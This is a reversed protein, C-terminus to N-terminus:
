EEGKEASVRVRMRDTFAELVSVCVREGAFLGQAILVEDRDLRAVTVERVHLREDEGLVLVQKEGRLAERPLRSIAKLVKGEIQAEVFLGPAFAPLEANETAYPDEVRAVVAIMRSRRDIEGEVRDVIAERTVMKGAIRASLIVEVVEGGSSAHVYGLSFPLYALDQDSIPLRVEAVETGYVLAISTGRNVFEGVDIHVERVRGSFPAIVQTRKLDLRARKLQAGVERAAAEAVKLNSESTDLDALSGVGKEALARRRNLNREALERESERVAVTAELQDVVAEYDSDDIRALIDGKAFFGGRVLKSSRASIRGAIETALNSETEPEVNGQAAVLFQSQEFRVPVVQVLPPLIEPAKASVTPRTWFLLFVLCLALGIVGFALTRSKYSGLGARKRFLGTGSGNPRDHSDSTM